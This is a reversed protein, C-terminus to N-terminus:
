YIFINTKLVLKKSFYDSIIVSIIIILFSAYIVLSLKWSIIFGITFRSITEGLILIIQSFIDGLGQEIHEM